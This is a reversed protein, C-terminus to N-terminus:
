FPEVCSQSMYLDELKCMKPTLGGYKGLGVGAPVNCVTQDVGNVKITSVKGKYVTECFDKAPRLYPDVSFHEFASRLAFFILIVLLLLIINKDM